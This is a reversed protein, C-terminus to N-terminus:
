IPKNTCHIFTSCQYVNSIQLVSSIKHYLNVFQLSKVDNFMFKFGSLVNHCKIYKVM